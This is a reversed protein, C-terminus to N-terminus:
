GGLQESGYQGVRAHPTSVEGRESGEVVHTL